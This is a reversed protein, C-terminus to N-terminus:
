VLIIIIKKYINTVMLLNFYIQINLLLIKFLMLNYNTFLLNYDYEKLLLLNKFFLKYKNNLNVNNVNFINTQYLEDTEYM